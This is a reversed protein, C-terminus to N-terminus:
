CRDLYVLGLLRVLGRWVVALGRAGGPSLIRPRMQNIENMNQVSVRM